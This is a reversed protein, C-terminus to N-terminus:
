SPMILVSVGCAPTQVGGSLTVRGTPRTMQGINAYFGDDAKAAHHCWDPGTSTVKPHRLRRDCFGGFPEGQTVPHALTIHADGWPFGSPRPREWAVKADRSGRGAPRHVRGRGPTPVRAIIKDTCGAAQASDWNLPM